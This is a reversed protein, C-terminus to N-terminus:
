KCSICTCGECTCNCKKDGKVFEIFFAISAGIFLAGGVKFKLTFVIFGLVSTLATPFWKQQITKQYFSKCLKQINM